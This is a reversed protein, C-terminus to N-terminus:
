SAEDAHCVITAALTLEARDLREPRFEKGTASGYSVQLRSPAGEDGLLEKVHAITWDSGTAGFRGRARLVVLWADPGLDTPSVPRVVLWGGASFGANKLGPSPVRVAFADENSDIDVLVRVRGHTKDEDVKRLDKVPLEVLHGKSSAPAAPRPSSAIPATLGTARQYASPLDHEVLYDPLIVRPAKSPAVTPHSTEAVDSALLAPYVGVTM